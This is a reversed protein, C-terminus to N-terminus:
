IQNHKWVDEVTALIDDEEVFFGEVEEIMAPAGSYKGILVVDFPKVDPIEGVAVVRAWQSQDPNMEFVEILSKKSSKPVIREVFARKGLVRFM